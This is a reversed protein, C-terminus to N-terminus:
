KTTVEHAALSLFTYEKQEGKWEYKKTIPGVITAKVIVTEGEIKKMEELTKGCEKKNILVLVNYESNFDLAYNVRDSHEKIDEVKVEFEVYRTGDIAKNNLAELINESTLEVKTFEQKNSLNDKIITRPAEVQQEVKTVPKTDEAKESEPDECGGFLMGIVALSCLAKFLM